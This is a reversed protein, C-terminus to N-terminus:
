GAALVRQMELLWARMTLGGPEPLYCCDLERLVIRRLEEDDPAERLLTGIETAAARATKPDVEATYEAVVHRWDPGALDWDQHFYAGFLHALAPVRGIM